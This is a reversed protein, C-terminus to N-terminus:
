HTDLVMDYGTLPMMFLDVHFAINDILIPAQRIVGLYSVRENNEVTTTPRRHLEIPLGTRRAALERIFSHISVTDVLTMFFMAPLLVYLQITNCVLVGVITHLSLVPAETDGTTADEATAIDVLEFLPGCLPATWVAPPTAGQLLAM